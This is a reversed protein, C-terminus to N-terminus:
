QIAPKQTSGIKSRYTCHVICLLCAGMDYTFTFFGYVFGGYSRCSRDDLVYM